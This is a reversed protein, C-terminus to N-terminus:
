TEADGGSADGPAPSGSGGTSGTDAGRGDTGASGSPQEIECRTTFGTHRSYFHRATKILYTGDVGERTGVLDLLAQSMAAPNGDMEVSGSGEARKASDANSAARLNARGVDPSKFTDHLDAQGTAATSGGVSTMACSWKAQTADYVRVISNNYVGRSCIPSVDWGILNLGYIASVGGLSVGGASMSSGRPVFTAQPFSVKFTAGIEEAIRRGWSLFSENAIVWYDRQISSLAGAVSVQYGAQQGIDQAVSGFGMNDYHKQIKQKGNGLMDASKANISLITGSHRRGFSRPEDTVGTFQISGGPSGPPPVIWWILAEIQSGPAPLAIRGGADDLIITCTDAKGGDSDVIELETLVPAFASSVDTGDVTIQYAAQSM